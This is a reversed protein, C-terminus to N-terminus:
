QLSSHKRHVHKSSVLLIACIVISASWGLLAILLASNERKEVEKLSRGSLVYYKGGQVSVAAIRVGSAPEWTVARYAKGEAAKLTGLPPVALRDNLYGNGSVPKGAKDYVNVFPMLSHRIDVKGAGLAPPAAFNVKLQAATDEALQIQPDNAESRLTQQTEAYITGFIGTILVLACLYFVIKKM